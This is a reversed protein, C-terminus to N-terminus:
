YPPDVYVALGPADQVKELLKFGDRRCITPRRLREHWASISDVASRARTAPDGGGATFRICMTSRAKTTGALGNRGFWSSIFYWYAREVHDHSVGHPDAPVGLSTDELPIAVYHNAAVLLPETFLVRWRKGYLIDYRDSALVMALNILDGHLDSVLETRAPPKHLLVACSGCFPDLFYRHPGLQHVIDAAETRKSGFWPVLADIM